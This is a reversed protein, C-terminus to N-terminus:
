YLYPAVGPACSLSCEKGDVLTPWNKPLGTLMRQAPTYASPNAAMVPCSRSNHGRQWGCAFCIKGWVKGAPPSPVVTSRPPAPPLPPNFVHGPPPSYTTSTKAAPRVSAPQPPSASTALALRIHNPAVYDPEGFFALHGTDPAHLYTANASVLFKIFPKVEALDFNYGPLETFKQVLPFLRTGPATCLDFLACFLNQPNLAKTPSALSLFHNHLVRSELNNKLTTTRDLPAKILAMQAEIHGKTVRTHADDHLIFHWIDRLTVGALGKDFHQLSLADVDVPEMRGLTVTRWETVALRFDNYTEVAQDHRKAQNATANLPLLEPAPPQVRSSVINAPAPPGASAAPTQPEAALAAAATEEPAPHLVVSDIDSLHPQYDLLSHITNKIPRLAAWAEEQRLFKFRLIPKSDGSFKFYIESKPDSVYSM